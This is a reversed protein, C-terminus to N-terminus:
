SIRNKRLNTGGCKLQKLQKLSKLILSEGASCSDHFAHVIRIYIRIYIRIRIRVNYLRM